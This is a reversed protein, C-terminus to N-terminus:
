SVGPLGAGLAILEAVAALGLVTRTLKVTALDRGRIRMVIVYLLLVGLATGGAVGAGDGLPHALSGAGEALRHDYSRDTEGRGRILAVVPIWTLAYAIYALDSATRPPRDARLLRFGAAVWLPITTVAWGLM